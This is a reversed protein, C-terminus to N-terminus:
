ERNILGTVEISYRSYVSMNNDNVHWAPGQVVHVEIAPRWDHRMSRRKMTMGRRRALREQLRTFADVFEKSSSRDLYQHDQEAQQSISMWVQSWLSSLCARMGDELIVAVQSPDMAAELVNRAQFLSAQQFRLQPLLGVRLVPPPPKMM